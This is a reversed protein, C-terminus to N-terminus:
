PTSLGASCQQGPPVLLMFVTIAAVIWDSYWRHPNHLAIGVPSANYTHPLFWLNFDFFALGTQSACYPLSFHGVSCLLMSFFPISCYIFDRLALQSKCTGIMISNPWLNTPIFPGVLKQNWLTIAELTFNIRPSLCFRGWYENQSFM